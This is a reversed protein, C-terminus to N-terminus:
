RKKSKRQIKLKDIDTSAVPAISKIHRLDGAITAFKVANTAGLSMLTIHRAFKLYETAVTM